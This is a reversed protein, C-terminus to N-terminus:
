RIFRRTGQITFVRLFDPLKKLIKGFLMQDYPNSMIFIQGTNIGVTQNMPLIAQNCFVLAQLLTRNRKLLLFFQPLTRKGEQPLQFKSDM